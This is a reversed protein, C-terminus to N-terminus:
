KIRLANMGADAVQMRSSFSTAISSGIGSDITPARKPNGCSILAKPPTSETINADKTGNRSYSPANEPNHESPTIVQEVSPYLGGPTFRASSSPRLDSSSFASTARTSAQQCTSDSKWDDFSSASQRLSQDSNAGRISITKWYDSVVSGPESPTKVSAFSVNHQLPRAATVGLEVSVVWEEIKHKVGADANFAVSTSSDLGALVPRTALALTQEDDQLVPLPSGPHNRGDASDWAQVAIGLNECVTVAAQLAASATNLNDQAVSLHEDWTCNFEEDTEDLVGEQDVVLDRRTLQEARETHLDDLREQMFRVEIASDYYDQLPELVQEDALNTEDIQEVPTSAISIESTTGDNAPSAQHFQTLVAASVEQFARGAADLKIDSERLEAMLSTVFQKQVDFAEIDSQLTARADKLQRRVDRSPVKASAMVDAFGHASDHVHVAEHGLNDVQHHLEM